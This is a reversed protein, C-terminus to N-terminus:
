FFILCLFGFLIAFIFVMLIGGSQDFFSPETDPTEKLKRMPSSEHYDSYLADDQESDHERFVHPKLREVAM